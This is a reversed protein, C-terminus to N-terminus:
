KWKYGLLDLVIFTAFTLVVAACAVCMIAICAITYWLAINGIREGVTPKREAELRAWIDPKYEEEIKAM